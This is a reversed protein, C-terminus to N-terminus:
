LKSFNVLKNQRRKALTTVGFEELADYYRYEPLIIRCARKQLRELEDSLYQPLSDHLAECAYDILPRIFTIYFLLLEKQLVKARKLQRLFYIRTSVKKCVNRIHSNWKLDNTITLGPLNVQSVVEIEKDNIIVPDFEVNKSSFCFRLEKCKSEKLPM